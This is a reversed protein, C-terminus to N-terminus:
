FVIGAADNVPYIGNATQLYTLRKLVPSIQMFVSFEYISPDELCKRHLSNQWFRNKKLAADIRGLCKDNVTLSDFNISMNIEERKTGKPVKTNPRTLLPRVMAKEYRPYPNLWSIAGFPLERRYVRGM